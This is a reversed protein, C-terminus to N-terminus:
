WVDKKLMKGKKVLGKKVLSVELERFVFVKLKLVVKFILLLVLVRLIIFGDRYVWLLVLVEKVEISEVDFYVSNNKCWVIYIIVIIIIIVVMVLVLIIIVFM